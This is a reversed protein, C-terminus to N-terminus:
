HRVAGAVREVRLEGGLDEFLRVGPAEQARGLESRGAERRQRRGLLCRREAVLLSYPPGRLGAPSLKTLQHTPSDASEGRVMGVDKREMEADSESQSVASPHGIM